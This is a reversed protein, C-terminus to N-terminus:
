WEIDMEGFPKSNNLEEVLNDVNNLYKNLIQKKNETTKRIYGDQYLLANNKSNDSDNNKNTNRKQTEPILYFFLFELIKLKVDKSTEKKRFHTCIKKPGQLAEFLRINPVNRVLASVLTQIAAKQISTTYNTSHNNNTTSSKIILGIILIMNHRQTFINRSSPHLLLLGNIIELLSLIDEQKLTEVTGNNNSHLIIMLRSVINFQFNNQLSILSGFVPDNVTPVKVPHTSINSCLSLLISQILQLGININGADLQAFSVELERQLESSM